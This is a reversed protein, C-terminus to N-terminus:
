PLVLGDPTIVGDACSEIRVLDFESEAGWGVLTAAPKGSTGELVPYDYPTQPVGELWLTLKNGVPDLLLWLDVFRAPLGVFRDLLTNSSGTSTGTRGFLQLEQRGDTQLALDAHISAYSTDTNDANIWFVAGKDGIQTNRFRLHVSTPIDFAYDPSTDLTTGSTRWVGGDLEGEPFPDGSRTRWDPLFDGNIDVTTPDSGFDLEWWRGGVCRCAGGDDVIGECAGADVGADGPGADGGDLAADVGADAAAACPIPTSSSPDGRVSLEFCAPECRGAVCTTGQTCSGGCSTSLFLRLERSKDPVFRARARAVAVRTTGDLLEAEFAFEQRASSGTRHVPMTAPWAFDAADLCTEGDLSGDIPDRVRMCLRYDGAKLTDDADVRVLAETVSQCASLELLCICATLIASPKM